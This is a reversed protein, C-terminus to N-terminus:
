SIRNKQVDPNAEQQLNQEKSSSLKKMGFWASVIPNPRILQEYILLPIAMAFAFSLLAVIYPHEIWDDLKFYTYTQIPGHFILLILSVKGLYQFSQSLRDSKDAIQKSIALVFVSGSLAELSNVIFSEYTRSFLDIKFTFLLNLSVLITGAILLTWWSAYFDEPLNQYMEYGILFFVGVVLLLDASFPLGELVFERGMFNIKYMWFIALTEVGAWLMGALLLARMWLAPLKGYLVKFFIYVFVNVAFLTPLFWLQAWDLYNGSAYAAKALHRTITSLQVNSFFFVVSYILLITVIYPQLLTRFRRLILDWFSMDARFFMGSLLFFLLMHFTYIFATPAPLITKIQNHGFVVLLIGIGKAIDIFEIRKSM